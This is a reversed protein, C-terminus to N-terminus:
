TNPEGYGQPPSGFPTFPTSLHHSLAVTASKPELIRLIAHVAAIATPEHFGDSVPWSQIPLGGRGVECVETDKSRWRFTRGKETIEIQMM